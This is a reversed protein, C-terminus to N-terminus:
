VIQHQKLLKSFLTLSTPTEWNRKITKDWTGSSVAENCWHLAYLPLEFKKKYYGVSVYNKIQEIDDNGFYITPVIYQDLKHKFVNDRFIEVPKIWRYNDSVVQEKTERICDILLDANEPVKIINATVKTVNNPRIVYPLSDLDNFSSLCCVDMDCYWGGNIKQLLTYRFLDSFGGLSGKRCDGNGEYVFIESRPIIEAADKVLVGDPVNRCNLDYAWLVPQHGNDLFSKLTLQGNKGISDGIWLFNIKLM